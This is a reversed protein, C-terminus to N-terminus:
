IYKLKKAGILADTDETIKKMKKIYYNWKSSITPLSEHVWKNLKKLKLTERVVCECIAEEVKNRPWKDRKLFMNQELFYM